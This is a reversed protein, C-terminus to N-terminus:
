LTHVHTMVLLSLPTQRKCAIGRSYKCADGITEVKYVDYNDIIDDFTTYLKNLFDVVQHPTSSGSLQTFGVIDSCFCCSLHGAFVAVNSTCFEFTCANQILLLYCTYCSFFSLNM